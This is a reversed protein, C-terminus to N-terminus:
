SADLQSTNKTPNLGQESHHTTQTKLPNQTLRQYERVLLLSHHHLRDSDCNLGRDIHRLQRRLVTRLGGGLQGHVGRLQQGLQGHIRRFQRGLQGDDLRSRRGPLVNSRPVRHHSRHSDGLCRRKLLDRLPPERTGSRKQPRQQRGGSKDPSRMQSLVQGRKRERLRM